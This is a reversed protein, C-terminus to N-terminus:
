ENSRGFDTMPGDTCYIINTLCLGQACRNDSQIHHGARLDLVVVLAM